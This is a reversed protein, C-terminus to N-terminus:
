TVLKQFLKYKSCREWQEKESINTQSQKGGGRVENYDNSVREFCFCVWYWRCLSRVLFTVARLPCSESGNCVNSGSFKLWTVTVSLGMWEWSCSSVNHVRLDSTRMWLCTMRNTSSATVTVHAGGGEGNTNRQADLWLQYSNKRSKHMGTVHWHM